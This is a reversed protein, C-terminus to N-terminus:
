MTAKLASNRDYGGHGEARRVPKVADCWSVSHCEATWPLSLSVSMVVVACRRPTAEILVAETPHMSTVVADFDEALILAHGAFSTPWRHWTM